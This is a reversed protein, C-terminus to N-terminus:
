LEPSVLEERLYYISNDYEFTMALAMVKKKRERRGSVMRLTKLEVGAINTTLCRKFQMARIRVSSTIGAGNFNSWLGSLM